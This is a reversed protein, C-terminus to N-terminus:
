NVNEAVKDKEKPPILKYFLLFSFLAVVVGFIIDTMWHVGVIVRSVASVIALGAFIWGWKRGIFFSVFVLIFMFVAHGSPFSGSPDVSALPSNIGLAEFPRQRKYIFRTVETIIGRGLIEALVTVGLLYFRKRIDKERFVLVLFLVPLIYIIYKALFVFLWEWSGAKQFFDFFPYSLINEM